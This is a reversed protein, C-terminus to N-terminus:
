LKRHSWLRGSRSAFKTKTGVASGPEIVKLFSTLGRSGSLRGPNLTAGPDSQARRNAQQDVGRRTSALLPHTSELTNSQERRAKEYVEARQQCIAIALGNHRQVPTVFKIDSHRHRHNYWDVFAAVWQCAQEKSSYPKRPYDPRYKVTRFLSESYPTTTQFGQGRSRGSCAWNKWAARWRPPVYPTEMM